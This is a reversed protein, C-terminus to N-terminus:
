YPESSVGIIILAIVLILVAVGIWGLVIGAIAMGRGSQLGGSRDIQSKAVYGFVLALISGIWYIWLIGLVLSAISFGNTKTAPVFVPAYGPQVPYPAGHQPSPYPQASSPDPAPPATHDTWQAGDWYRQGVREPDPYWGPPPTSGPAPAGGPSDGGEAEPGSPEPRGLPKAGPPLDSESGM